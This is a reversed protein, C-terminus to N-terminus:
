IHLVKINPFMTKYLRTGAGTPVLITEIGVSAAECLDASEVGMVLGAGKINTDIECYMGQTVAIKKLKDIMDKELPKTPHFSKSIIVCKVTKDPTPPQIGFNTIGASIIFDEIPHTTGNCRLESIHAFDNKRIRLESLKLIHNCDKLIHTKDDKCGIYITLDPFEKELVPKLIRLQILYEDSQGFYCVCYNNAVKAYDTFSIM